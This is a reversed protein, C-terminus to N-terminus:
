RPDSREHLRRLRNRGQWPYRDPVGQSHRAQQLAAKKLEDSTVIIVHANAYPQHEGVVEFGRHLLAEKVAAIKEKMDGTSSSALTFPKLVVAAHADPGTTALALVFLAFWAKVTGM